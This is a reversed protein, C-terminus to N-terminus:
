LLADIKEKIERSTWDQEGFYREVIRGNRDILFTTPISFVNYIRSVKIDGDHLVLYEIPNTEMFEKITSVSRDTSIGVIEFDRGQFGRRLRNLAPIEEVCPPCWTAWFNLLLVRGRLDRLSVDRGNLDKLTFDPAEKGLLDEIAWPDPLGSLPLLNVLLAILLGGGM